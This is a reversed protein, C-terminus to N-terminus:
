TSRDDDRPKLSQTAQWAAIRKELVKAGEAAAERKTAFSLVSRNYAQKGKFLVWYYRGSRVRDPELRISFQHDDGMSM